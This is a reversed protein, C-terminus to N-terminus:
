KGHAEQWLDRFPTQRIDIAEVERRGDDYVLTLAEVPQRLANESQRQGQLSRAFRLLQQRRAKWWTARRWSQVKALVRPDDVRIVLSICRGTNKDWRFGEVEAYSLAPGSYQFYAVIALAPLGVLAIRVFRRHKMRLLPALMHLLCLKRTFSAFANKNNGSQGKRPVINM